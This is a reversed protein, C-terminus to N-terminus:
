LASAYLLGGGPTPKRSGRRSGILAGDRLAVITPDHALRSPHWAPPGVLEISSCQGHVPKVQHVPQPESRPLSAVHLVRPLRQQLTRIGQRAPTCQVDPTARSPVSDIQGLMAPLDGSDVEGLRGQLGRPLARLLLTDLHLPD